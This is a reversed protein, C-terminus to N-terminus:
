EQAHQHELNGLWSTISLASQIRTFAVHASTNLVAELDLSYFEGNM